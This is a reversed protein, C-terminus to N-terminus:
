TDLAESIQWGFKANLLMSTDLAFTTPLGYCDCVTFGDIDSNM